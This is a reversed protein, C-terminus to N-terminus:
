LFFFWSVLNTGSFRFLVINWFITVVYSFSIWIHEGYLSVFLFFRRTSTSFRLGVFVLTGLFFNLFLLYLFELHIVEFPYKRIDPVTSCCWLQNTFLCLVSNECQFLKFNERRKSLKRKWAEPFFVSPFFNLSYLWCEFVIKKQKFLRSPTKSTQPRVYRRGYASHLWRWCHIALKFM